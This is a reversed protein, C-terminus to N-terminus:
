GDTFLGSEEPVPEHPAFPWRKRTGLYLVIKAAMTAAEKLENPNVYELTDLATHHLASPSRSGSRHAIEWICPVGRRYFSYHDSARSLIEKVPFRYHMSEMLGDWFGPDNKGTMAYLRPYGGNAPLDFNFFVGIRKRNEANEAYKESGLRGLEEGTFFLFRVPRELRVGHTALLRAVESVVAVGSGNDDAGPSLDFTDLHAGLVIEQDKRRGPLFGVVNGTFRSVNECSTSLSVKRAGSRMARRLLAVSEGSIGVTIPPKGCSARIKLSATSVVGPSRYTGVILAEAGARVAEETRSLDRKEELEEYDKRSFLVAKGKIKGGHRRFDGPTGEFLDVVELTRARGGTSRSFVFALCPIELDKAPVRLRSGSRVWTDVKFRQVRTDVGWGELREVVTKRAKKEGRSGTFRNGFSAIDGLLSEMADGTWIDGCIERDAKKLNV